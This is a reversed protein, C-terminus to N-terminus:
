KFIIPLKSLDFLPNEKDGKLKIATEPFSGRKKYITDIAKIVENPNVDRLIPDGKIWEEVKVNGSAIQCLILELELDSKLGNKIAEKVETDMERLRIGEQEKLRTEIIIKAKKIDKDVISAGVKYMKAFKQVIEKRDVGKEILEVIDNIRKQKVSVKVM